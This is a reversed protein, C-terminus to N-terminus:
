EPAQFLSATGVHVGPDALVYWAPPLAVPSLLEGVGEAWATRGRVFVPVDAGLGLGLGALRDEGLQLGWLHDLARLVTAANSSGGGFGGGVPIAKEVVIDAGQRCKVETQLIKAARVVLDSAEDVGPASTGIRHIEGDDRVRI